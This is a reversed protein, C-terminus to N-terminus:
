NRSTVQTLCNPLVLTQLVADAAECEGFDELMKSKALAIIVQAKELARANVEVRFKESDIALEPLGNETAVKDHTDVTNRVIRVQQDLDESTDKLLVDEGAFYKKGILENAAQVAFFDAAFERLSTAWEDVAADEDDSLALSCLREHLLAIKLWRVQSKDLIIWNARNVVSDPFGHMRAQRVAQNVQAADKGKMAARISSEVQRGV